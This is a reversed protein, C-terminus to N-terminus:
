LLAAVFDSIDRGDLAADGNMDANDIDCGAFVPPDILATVFLPQDMENVAGDCNMDGPNAPVSIFGNELTSAPNGNMSAATVVIPYVGPPMGNPINFSDMAIIGSIVPNTPQVFESGTLVQSGASPVNSSFEWWAPGPLDPGSVASPGTLATGNFSLSISFSALPASDTNALTIPVSAVIGPAATTNGVALTFPAEDDREQANVNVSTMGVASITIVATDSSQDADSSAGLTVVQFSSWNGSTFVLNAGGSVSLDADGAIRDVSVAVNGGPDQTLRVLFSNAFGESVVEPNDAVVQLQPNAGSGQTVTVPVSAGDRLGAGDTITLNVVYNGAQAYTHSVSPGWNQTTGDGFDYNWSVVNDNNATMSGNSYNWDYEWVQSGAASFAATAGNISTVSLSAVPVSETAGPYHGAIWAQTRNWSELGGHGGTPSWHFAKLDPTSPDALEFNAAVDWPPIATDAQGGYFFVATNDLKWAMNEAVM